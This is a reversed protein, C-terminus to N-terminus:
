AGVGFIIGNPPGPRRSPGCSRRHGGSGGGPRDAPAGRTAEATWCRVQRTRRGRRGSGCGRASLALRGRADHRPHRRRTCRRLPGALDPRVRLRGAARHTAVRHGAFARPARPPHVPLPGQETGMPVVRFRAAGPALLFRGAVYALRGVLSALLLALLVAKFGRSWDFPLFAGISGVAYSTIMGLSYALRTFVALVRERATQLQLAILWHQVGRMSKRFLWEGGLGLAVFVPLFLALSIADGRGLMDSLMGGANDFQGPLRPVAEALARIRNRLHQLGDGLGGAMTNSPDPVTQAPRVPAVSSWIPHTRGPGRRSRASPAAQRFADHGIRCAERVRPRRRPRPRAARSASASPAHPRDSRHIRPAHPNGLVRACGVRCLPAECTDQPGATRM